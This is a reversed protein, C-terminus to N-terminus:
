PKSCHSLPAARSAQPTLPLEQSPLHHQTRASTGVLLDGKLTRRVTVGTPLAAVQLGSCYLDDPNNMAPKERGERPKM